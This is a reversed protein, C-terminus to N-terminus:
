IRVNNCHTDTLWAHAADIMRKHATYPTHHAHMVNFYLWDDSSCWDDHGQWSVSVNSHMVIVVQECRCRWSGVMGQPCHIASVMTSPGNMIHYSFNQDARNMSTWKAEHDDLLSHTSYWELAIRGGPHDQQKPTSSDLWARAGEFAHKERKGWDQLLWRLHCMTGSTLRTSTIGASSKHRWLLQKQLPNELVALLPLMRQSRQAASLVWSHDFTIVQLDILQTGTWNWWWKTLWCASYLLMPLQRRPVFSTTNM